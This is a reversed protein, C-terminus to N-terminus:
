RRYKGAMAQYVANENTLIAYKANLIALQSNLETNLATIWERFESVGQEYRNKYYSSIRKNKANTDQLIKLSSRSQTYSYYYRDIENLASTIKQEYNLRATVYDTESIKVNNKVRNWDLFPLDLKILGNGVPNDAVNGINTASGTISGGITLTPFWSKETATLTKFASQLRQLSGVVDPRNAIASVPVNLDVGQLKVSMINPYRINLPTNPQVNLLNRLTQEAIKQNTKLDIVSNRANLVAQQAQDVALSDIAGANMKNTLIRSIQEYNRISEETIRIADRYYALQYYTTVVANIISLRTAKLDEITAKHTWEAASATDALRRWLDVTYSLNFAAQAATTSVGTSVNNSSASGLGKAASVSGSGSFTPVLNAGVLNANYLAKNVAIGSKALDLNNKIALDVVRNLEADTYGQWWQENIQYQKTIEDYSQYTQQAQQLTGDNSMNGTTCATVTLALAVSFALKSLKM